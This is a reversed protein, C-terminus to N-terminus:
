RDLSHLESRLPSDSLRQKWLKPVLQEFQSAPHCDVRQLVDVLYTYSDIDHLRCSVILLGPM